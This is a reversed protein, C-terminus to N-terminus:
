CQAAVKRQRSRSSVLEEARPQSSNLLGLRYKRTASRPPLGAWQGLVKM